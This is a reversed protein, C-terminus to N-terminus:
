SKLQSLGSVEPPTQLLEQVAKLLDAPKFPKQIFINQKRDVDINVVIDKMYGSIYIVKINKRINQITKALDTGDMKPMIVDTLLLDISKVYDNSINLAEEGDKAALVHYGQRSLYEKAFERISAEDDVVLITKTSTNEKPNLSMQPLKEQKQALGTYCPLYIEFVSGSGFDSQVLINGGCQQIIGQCVSLGLGTGSGDSKTTFFPEFIRKQTEPTMGVGNDSIKMVVHEGSQLDLSFAKEQDLYVNELLISIKGRTSSGERATIADKANMCINLVVQELSGLDVHIRDDKATSKIELTNEDGVCTMILSEMKSLLDQLEVVSPAMPKKRAYCLLQNTLRAGRDAAEQIHDLSAHTERGQRILEAFGIISTLINNFDHAVGGALRGISEIKQSRLLQERIKEAEFQAVKKDTIDTNTGSLLTPVGNKDWKTVRGCGKIWRWTGDAARMQFETEYGHGQKVSDSVIQVVREVDEPKTLKKWSELNAPFENMQYGLMTYWRPSYYTEDTALDWEWICDTTAELALRLREQSKNREEETKKLETLDLVFGVVQHQSESYLTAGMLVPVRRGSQHIFVKEYTKSSGQSQVDAMSQLVPMASNPPLLQCFSLRGTRLEDKTYGVMRLFEQNADKIKGYRDWVVLGLLNSRSLGKMKNEIESLAKEASKANQYLNIATLPIRGSLAYYLGVSTTTIFFFGKYTQILNLTEPDKWLLFIFQDSFFIWSMALVWYTLAIRIALRQFDFEKSNDNSASTIKDADSIM